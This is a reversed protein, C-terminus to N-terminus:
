QFLIRTKHLYIISEQSQIWAKAKDFSDERFLNFPFTDFTSRSILILIDPPNNSVFSVGIEFYIKIPHRSLNGHMIPFNADVGKVATGYQYCEPM